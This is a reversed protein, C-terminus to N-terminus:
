WYSTCSVVSKWTLALTEVGLAMVPSTLMSWLMHPGMNQLCTGDHAHGFTQGCFDLSWTLPLIMSYDRRHWPLGCLLPACALLRPTLGLMGASVLLAQVEWVSTSAPSSSDSAHLLAEEPDQCVM